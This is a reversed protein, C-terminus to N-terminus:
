ENLFLKWETVGHANRILASVPMEKPARPVAEAHASPSAPKPGSEFRARLGPNSARRRLAVELPRAVFREGEKVRTCDFVLAFELKLLARESGYARCSGPNSQPTGRTRQISRSPQAAETYHKPQGISGSKTERWRKSRSRLLTNSRTGSRIGSQNSCNQSLSSPSTM